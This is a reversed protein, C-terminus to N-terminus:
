LGHAYNPLGSFKWPVWIYPANRPWRQSLVAKKYSIVNITCNHSPNISNSYVSRSLMGRPPHCPRGHRCPRCGPYSSVSSPCSPLRGRCGWVHPRFPLCELVTLIPLTRSECWCTIVTSRDRHCTTRGVFMVQKGTSSDAIFPKISIWLLKHSHTNKQEIPRTAQSLYFSHIFSHIVRYIFLSTNKVFNVYNRYWWSMLKHEATTEGTFM